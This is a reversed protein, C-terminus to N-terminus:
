MRASNQSGCTIKATSEARIQGRSWEGARVHRGRGGPASLRRGVTSRGHPVNSDRAPEVVPTRSSSAAEPGRSSPCPRLRCSEARHDSTHEVMVAGLEEGDCPRGSLTIRRRSPRMRPYASYPSGEPLGAKMKWPNGPELSSAASAWSAAMRACTRTIQGSLGPIPSLVNWGPRVISSQGLSTIPSASASPTSRNATPPIEPPPGYAAAHANRMASRKVPAAIILPIPGGSTGPAAAPMCVRSRPNSMSARRAGQSTRNGISHIARAM